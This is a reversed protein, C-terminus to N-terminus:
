GARRRKFVGMYDSTSSNSPVLVNGEKGLVIPSLSVLEWGQAGLDNLRSGMTGAEGKPSMIETLYEWREIRASARTGTPTGPAPHTM